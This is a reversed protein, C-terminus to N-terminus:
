ILFSHDKSLFPPVVWVFLRLFIPLYLEQDSRLYVPIFFTFSKVRKQRSGWFASIMHVELSQKIIPLQASLPPLDSNRWHGPTFCSHVTKGTQISSWAPTSFSQLRCKQSCPTPLHLKWSFVQDVSAEWQLRLSSKLSAEELQLLCTQIDWNVAVPSFFFVVLSSTSGSQIEAWSFYCDCSGM